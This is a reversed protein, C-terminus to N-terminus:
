AAGAIPPTRPDDGHLPPADGESRPINFCLVNRECYHFLSRALDRIIGWGLGGTRMAAIQPALPQTPAALCGPPLPAGDDTIACARGGAHRTVTMHVTVPRAARAGPAPEKGAGTGHRAVNNLVEALVLEMRALADDAVAREFRRRVDVLARQVAMGDANLVRHFM